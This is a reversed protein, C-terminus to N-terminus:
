EEIYKNLLIFFKATNGSTTIGVTLDGIDESEKQSKLVDGIKSYLESDINFESINTVGSVLAVFEDSDDTMDGTVQVGTLSGDEKISLQLESGSKIAKYNIITVKDTTQPLEAELEVGVETVSTSNRVEDIVRDSTEIVPDTSDSKGSCGTIGWMLFMCTFLLGIKKM